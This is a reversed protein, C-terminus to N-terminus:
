RGTMQVPRVKSRIQIGSNTVPDIATELELEFDYFEQLTCLFSNLSASAEVTRGVIAGDEVTFRHSGNMHVWGNLTTGDFLDIWGDASSPPATAAAPATQRRDQPLAFAIISDG